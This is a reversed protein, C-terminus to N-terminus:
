SLEGRWTGDADYIGVLRTIVASPLSRQDNM